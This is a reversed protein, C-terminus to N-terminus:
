TAGSGMGSRQIHALFLYSPAESGVFFWTEPLFKTEKPIESPVVNEISPRSTETAAVNTHSLWEDFYQKFDDQEKPSHCLIPGLLIRLPEPETPLANQKILALLLNQAALIQTTGINYGAFRLAEILDGLNNALINPTNM